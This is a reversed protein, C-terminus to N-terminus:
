ERPFLTDSAKDYTWPLMIAKRQGDVIKIVAIWVPNFGPGFNAVRTCEDLAQDNCLPTQTLYILRARNDYYEYTSAVWRPDAGPHLGNAGGFQWDDPFEHAPGDYNCELVIM